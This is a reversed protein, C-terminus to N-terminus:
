QQETQINNNQKEKNMPTMSVNEFAFRSILPLVYDYLRRMGKYNIKDETDNYTHWDKHMGTSFSLAPINKQKFSTYDTSAPKYMLLMLNLKEPNPLTSLQTFAGAVDDIGSIEVTKNSMRGTMDFNFMAQITSLPIIPNGVFYNSGITRAEESGFAVCIIDRKLLDRHNSFYRAYEMMTAVGSANDDAGYMIKLTDNKISNGLHDYHAGLVICEKNPNAKAAANIRVVVNNSYICGREGKEIKAYYDLSAGKSLRGAVEPTVYVLLLKESLAWKSEQKPLKKVIIVVGAVQAKEAASGTDFLFDDFSNDDFEGEIMVIKDRVNIGEYDKEMGKGAYIVKGSFGGKWSYLSPTYDKNIRLRKGNLLMYTSDATVERFGSYAYRQLGGNALMEINPMGKFQELIYTYSLTDGHTMPKRGGYERSSLTSVHHKFNDILIKERQNNAVVGRYEQAGAYLCSIIFILTICVIQKM